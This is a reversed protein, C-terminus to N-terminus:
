SAARERRPIMWGCGGPLLEVRLPIGVARLAADIDDLSFCTRYSGGADMIARGAELQAASSRGAAAKLELGVFLSRYLINLDPMGPRVGLGALLGMEFRKRTGRQNPTAWFIADPPLAVALYQVASRQLGEEPRNM